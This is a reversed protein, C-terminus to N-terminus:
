QSRSRKQSAAQVLADIQYADQGNIVLVGKLRRPEQRLYDSKKLTLSLKGAPNVLEQRAGNDVQEQEAPFFLARAVPQGPAITLRFTDPLSTVVPRFSAPLPKPLQAAASQLLRQAADDVSTAEAIRVVAKLSTRQPVCVDHCVLWRLDGSLDVTAGPQATAPIPLSTLLVTTGEYGFDTGAPNSLRM